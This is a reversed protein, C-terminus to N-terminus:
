KPMSRVGEHPRGPLCNCYDSHTTSDPRSRVRVGEDATKAADEGTGSGSMPDDVAKLWMNGRGWRAGFREM